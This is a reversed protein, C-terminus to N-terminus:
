TSICHNPTFPIAMDVDIMYTIAVAAVIIATRRLSDSAPPPGSRPGPPARHLRSFNADGPPSAARSLDLASVIKVFESCARYAAARAPDSPLNAAGRRRGSGAGTDQPVNPYNPIM